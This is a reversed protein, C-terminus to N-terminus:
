RKYYYRSMCTRNHGIEHTLVYDVARDITDENDVYQKTEEDANYKDLLYKLEEKNNRLEEARNQAYEFRFAHSARYEEQTEECARKLNEYYDKLKKEYEESQLKEILNALKEFKEERHEFYLTRTRGGKAKHITITKDERNVEARAIERVRFGGLAQAEAIMKNLENLNERVAEPNVYSDGKKKEQGAAWWGIRNEDNNLFDKIDPRIVPLTKELACIHIKITSKSFGKNALEAFYNNILEKLEETSKKKLHSERKIGLEELYDCFRMLAREYRAKTTSAHIFNSQRVGTIRQMQKQIEGKRMGKGLEYLEDLTHKILYRVRNRM